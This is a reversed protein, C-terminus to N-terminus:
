GRSFSAHCWWNDNESSLNKSTVPVFARIWHYCTPLAPTPQRCERDISESIADSIQRIAEVAGSTDSQITEIKHSIDETAKATEKALEKVENAVVAFGKGAEGARPRRGPSSM